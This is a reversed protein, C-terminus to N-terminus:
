HFVIVRFGVGLVGNLIAAACNVNCVAAVELHVAACHLPIIAIPMIRAIAIIIATVGHAHIGAGKHHIATRKSCIVRNIIQAVSCDAHIAFAGEGHVAAAELIRCLRDDAQRVACYEVHGAALDDAACLRIIIGIANDMHGAAGEVHLVTFNCVAGGADIHFLAALERHVIALDRVADVANLYLVISRRSRRSGDKGHVVALDAVGAGVSLVAAKRDPHPGVRGEVQLAALDAAVLGIGARYGATNIHPCLGAQINGACRLDIIIVRGEPVIKVRKVDYGNVERERNRTIDVQM